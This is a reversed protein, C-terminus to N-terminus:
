KRPHAQRVGGVPEERVKVTTRAERGGARVVVTYTGVPVLQRYAWESPTGMGRAYVSTASDDSRLDWWVRHVGRGGPGELRRVVAGSADRIEIEVTGGDVATRYPIATGVPPTRARFMEDGNLEEITNGYTVRWRFRTGTEVPFVHLEAALADAMEAMPGIDVTWIALGFTGVALDRDRAQVAMTRVAVTPLGSGLRVWHAGGDISVRVGHEVGVYLVDPNDPDERIVYAPGDDLDGVRSTWTRGGDDTRYLYPAHDDRAHCDLAVYARERHFRSTEIEAVVCNDPAGPMNGDVRTWEGGLDTTVWVPGDDAGAWLTRADFKSEAVSFLTGYSHYGDEIGRFTRDQQWSLDDSLRQVDGTEGHIRFLYNSGLYIYDADHESLIMAPTWNYRVPGDIGMARLEDATPQLEVREWDRMDMRSTNGFQQVLYIINPDRPDTASAMGDGVYRLKDWDEDTIGEEDYVRSPGLWHGTDQMGGIVHWPDQNDVSIEYFQGIPLASVMWTEGRDFSINVGGDGVIVLHDPDSPDIWMGHLDNHVHRINVMEWTRGGDESRRLEFVPMYVRDDESPDVFVQQYYYGTSPDSVKRWTEGADDSRYLGTQSGARERPENTLIAAYVIRSDGRAVSLHIKGMPETPLGYGLRTWTDGGDSSKFVGSGPGSEDMDGGGFRFRQWMGAYLVDPDRPDMELDMAGTTDNVFLVKEWSAGGDTTRFVGREANAGWLHGMAAVYVRDPDTPHIVIRSILYSDSLGMHTWSEGGDDSRYVGDGWSNARTNAPEGTGVWVVSPTSPAVAVAGTSASGYRDFVNRFTTGHNTTKWLGGGATTVYLTKPDSEVGTVTWARGAPMSPGLLRWELTATHEPTLSQAELRPSEALPGLAPALCLLSLTAASWALLARM